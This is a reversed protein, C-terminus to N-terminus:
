PVYKFNPLVYKNFYNVYQDSETWLRITKDRLPLLVMVGSKNDGLEGTLQTGVVNNVNPPQYPSAKTTGQKVTGDHAKLEDAYTRNVVQLRTAYNAGSSVGPVFNPQFYGDVGNSGKGSEDVYASWTKPYQMSITGYSSPGQYVKLPEKEREIFENDKETATQQKAVEVAAAVKADTNNKYDQRGSYAWLGFGLAMFLFLVALILPILLINISGEQRSSIKM